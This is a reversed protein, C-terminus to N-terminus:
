RIRRGEEDLAALSKCRGCEQLDGGHGEAWDAFDTVAMACAKLYAGSTYIVDRASITACDATHVVMYNLRPTRHANVVLGFPNEHLWRRYGTEDDDFIIPAIDSYRHDISLSPGDSLGIRSECSDALEDDVRYRRISLGM